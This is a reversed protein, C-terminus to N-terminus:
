TAQAMARARNERRAVEAEVDALRLRLNAESNRSAVLEDAAELAGRACEEEVRAQEMARVAAPIEVEM